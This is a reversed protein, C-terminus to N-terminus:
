YVEGDVIFKGGKVKVVQVWWSLDDYVDVIAFGHQWNTSDETIYSPNLTCLCGQEYGEHYGNRDSKIYEGVRHVHGVIVSGGKDNQVAKATQGSHKSTRDGHEVYLEGVLRTVEQYTKYQWGRERLRLLHPISLLRDGYRDQLGALKKANSALFTQLRKEHNGDHWIKEPDRGVADEIRDLLDNTQDVEDELPIEELSLFSSISECDMTDGNLILGTLRQTHLWSLVKDVLAKDEYPVHIDSLVVFRRVRSPQRKGLERQLKGRSIGLADAAEIQTLGEDLLSIIQSQLSM